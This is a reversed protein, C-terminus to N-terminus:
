LARTNVVLLGHCAYLVARGKSCGSNAWRLVHVWKLGASEGVAVCLWAWWKRKVVAIIMLLLGGALLRPALM